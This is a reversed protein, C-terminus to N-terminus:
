GIGSSLVSDTRRIKTDGFSSHLHGELYPQLRHDLSVPGLALHDFIRSVENQPNSVLSEYGVTCVDYNQSFNVLTNLGYTLDFLNPDNIPKEFLAAIDVNWSDKYSAASDLPNRRIWVYRADPMAEQIFDLCLYSRPTKDVFVAKGYLDLFHSYILHT